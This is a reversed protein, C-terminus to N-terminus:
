GNRGCFYRRPGAESSGDNQETDDKTEKTEKGKFFVWFLLVGAMLLLCGCASLGEGIDKAGKAFGEPDFKKKEYEKTVYNYKRSESV